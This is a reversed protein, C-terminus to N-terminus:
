FAYPPHNRVYGQHIAQQYFEPGNLFSKYVDLQNMGGQMQGVWFSLGGPDPARNLVTNFIHTVYDTQYEVTGLIGQAVQWPLISGNNLEDVYDPDNSNQARGLLLQYARNVLGANTGGADQMFEAGGVFTEIVSERTAGNVLQQTWWAEGGPDAARGLLLEFLQDVWRTYNEQPLLINFAEPINRNSTFWNTWSVLGGPDPQRFDCYVFTAYAMDYWGYDTEEIKFKYEEFIPKKIANNPTFVGPSNWQILGLTAEDKGTKGDENLLEYFFIAKVPKQDCAEFEDDIASTETNGPQDTATVYNNIETLWIDKGYSSLTSLAGSLSSEGNYNDYGIIDYPVQYTALTSFFSPNGGSNIIIKAQPDAAKIAAIMGKFYNCIVAQIFSSANFYAWGYADDEENAVEYYHQPFDGAYTSMFSQASTVGSAYANDPNLSQVFAHDWIIIPLIGVGSDAAAAFLASANPGYATSAYGGDGNPDPNFDVRYWPAQLEKLLGMQWRLYSNYVGPDANYYAGPYLPHGNAGWIFPQAVRMPLNFTYTAPSSFANGSTTPPLSTPTVNKKCSICFFLIGAFLYAKKM